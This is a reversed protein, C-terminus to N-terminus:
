GVKYGQGWVVKIYRPDQPNEEIKERLHRIHVAVTNDAGLPDMKWISKYIQENSLVRGPRELLLHLIKYETPTLKVPQGEVSVNRTNDDVELGNIKLPMKTKRLAMIREYSRIQAQIRALSVMESDDTFLADDMGNNLALIELLAQEKRLIALIPKTSIGRIDQLTCIWEMDRDAMQRLDYLVLSVCDKALGAELQKRDVKELWFGCGNLLMELTTSIGTEGLYYITRSIIKNNM